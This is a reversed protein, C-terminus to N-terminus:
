SLALAQNLPGSVKRADGLLGTVLGGCLWPKRNEAQLQGDHKIKELKM